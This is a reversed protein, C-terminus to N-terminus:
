SVVYRSVQVHDKLSIGFTIWLFIDKLIDYRFNEKLGMKQHGKDYDTASLPTILYSKIYKNVLSM